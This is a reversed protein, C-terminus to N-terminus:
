GAHVKMEKIQSRHVLFTDGEHQASGDPYDAGQLKLWEGKTELLRFWPWDSNPDHWTIEVLEATTEPIEAKPVNIVRPRHIEGRLPTPNLRYGDNGDFCM